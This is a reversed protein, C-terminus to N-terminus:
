FINNKISYNYIFDSFWKHAEEDYHSAYGSEVSHQSIQQDSRRCLETFCYFPDYMRPFRKPNIHTLWPGYRPNRDLTNMSANWFLYKIGYKQFTNQLLLIQHLYDIIHHHRDISTVWSRYYQYDNFEFTEKYADDNGTVLPAWGNDFFNQKNNDESHIETRYWGPWLIVIFLNKFNYNYKQAHEHLYEFTTRVVRHCSAGSMSLNDCKEADLKEALFKPWAKDYCEGQQPHEIEAGATHSCGNAMLIM